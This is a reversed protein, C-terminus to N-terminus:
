PRPPAVKPFTVAVTCGGGPTAGAELKAGLQIALMSILQWGMSASALIDFGPPLGVGNDAVTLNVLGGEGSLVSLRVKGTAEGPFAHKFCNSVLEGAVLGCTIATDADLEVPDGSVEIGVKSTEVMYIDTLYVALRRLYDLFDVHALDVAGDERRRYLLEHILAMSYIRGQSERLAEKPAEEALSSAQLSLLSSVVQLNNKVRHHIERILLDKEELSKKLARDAEELESLTLNTIGALASLEDDGGLDVRAGLDQTAGIREIETGLRSLRKLIFRDIVAYVLASALFNVILLALVIARLNTLGALHIGRRLTVTLIAAPKGYIDNLLAKGTITTGDLPRIVTAPGHGPGPKGASAAKWEPPLNGDSAPSVGIDLATRESLLDEEIADMRLGVVLTGAAPVDFGSSTIPRAAVLMLGGGPLSVLGSAGSRLDGRWLLMDNPSFRAQPAFMPPPPVLSDTAMDFGRSTVVRGDEGMFAILSIRLNAIAETNLNDPVFDPFEGKMFRYSDDWPAWDNAVLCLRDKDEQLSRLARVVQREMDERELRAYGRLNVYALTAGLLLCVAFM